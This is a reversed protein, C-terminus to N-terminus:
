WLPMDADRAEGRESMTAADGDDRAGRVRLVAHEDVVQRRGLQLREIRAPLVVASTGIPPVSCFPGCMASPLCLTRTFASASFIARASPLASTAGTM